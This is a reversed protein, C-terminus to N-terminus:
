LRGNMGLFLLLMEIILLVVGLSFAGAIKFIKKWKSVGEMLYFYTVGYYAALYVPKLGKIWADLTDLYLFKFPFFLFDFILKIVIIYTCVILHEFLNLRRLFLYSSVALAPVLILFILNPRDRAMSKGFNEAMSLDLKPLPFFYNNLLTYFGAMVLLMAVPKFHRVRKGELYGGITAAPHFLLEKATYFLGKDLNLFVLQVEKALYRGDIRQTDATQGCVPCFQGQFRTACNKCNAPSLTDDM